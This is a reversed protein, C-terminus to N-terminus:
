LTNWPKSRLMEKMIGQSILGQQQVNQIVNELHINWATVDQNEGQKWAYFQTLFSSERMITGYLGDIKHYNGINFSKSGNGDIRKEATAEKSHIGEM